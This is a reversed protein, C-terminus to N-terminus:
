TTYLPLISNRFSGSRYTNEIPMLEPTFKAGFLVKGGAAEVAEVVLPKQDKFDPENELMKVLLNISFYIDHIKINLNLFSFTFINVSYKTRIIVM